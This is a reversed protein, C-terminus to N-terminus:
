QPARRTTRHGLPAVRHPLLRHLHRHLLHDTGRRRRTDLRAPPASGPSCSSPKPSPRAPSSTATTSRPGCGNATPTAPTCRAACRAFITGRRLWSTLVPLAYPALVAILLERYRGTFGADVVHQYYIADAVRRDIDDATTRLAATDAGDSVGDLEEDDLDQELEAGLNHLGGLEADDPTAPPQVAAAGEEPQLDAARHAARAERQRSQM